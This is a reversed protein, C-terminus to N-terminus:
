STLAPRPRLVNADALAAFWDPDLFEYHWRSQSARWRRCVAGADVLARVHWLRRTTPTYSQEFSAGPKVWEPLAGRSSTM